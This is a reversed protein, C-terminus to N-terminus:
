LPPTGNLLPTVVDLATLVESTNIVPATLNIAAEANLNIIPSQLSIAAPTIEISSTGMCVTLTIGQMAEVTQTGMEINISQNGMQVNLSDDGLKLTWNRSASGNHGTFSEGITGTETDKITVDHDKEAHMRIDESGKKDEFMFENYGSHGKSSDSKVGSQTKNDPLMYPYKNDGNFVCGVVLPRDPDGELFDVVVEMGIRPIFQGGWQKLSWMQAVRIPCSKQPERDWFFQVWIHGHEDTSIEEGDEGKKPVVKATEIGLVRPKATKQQMRFPIDSPLLEYWGVYIEDEQVPGMARYQQVGYTHSCQVVLYEKNESDIPHREATTLSGPFLSPADGECHRRNDQCQEAELRVKSFKKGKDEDKYKGPYDYIEMKSHAYKSSAENPVLLKKPPQLYDYDNFTVKGTCFRRESTWAGFRQQLDLEPTGLPNYPLNPADPNPKHSSRSDAMVLTHKGESHEFYYYIGWHEMLRCCFAYDTERYQVCYPIPDYSETLKGFDYDSFGAKDFIDQIIETVKKDLFIRCNAQHRLLSFWPRLMLRYRFYNEKKEISQAQVLIGDLLRTKGQYTKLKITCSKGLAPDFNLNAQESIAYINFEFLDGLAEVGEFQELCLIDKGLPTILQGVRTDQTITM